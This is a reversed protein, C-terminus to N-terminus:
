RSYLEWLNDHLVDEFEKGLREQPWEVWGPSIVHQGREGVVVQDDFIKIGNGLDTYGRTVCRGHPGIVVTSPVYKM